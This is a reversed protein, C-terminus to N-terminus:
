SIRPLKELAHVLRIHVLHATNRRRNSDPLLVRRAVWTRCHASLRFYVIVQPQEVRAHARRDTANATALNLAIGRFGRSLLDEGRERLARAKIHQKRGAGAKVDLRISVSGGPFRSPSLLFLSLRVTTRDGRCGALDDYRVRHAQHLAAERPKVM